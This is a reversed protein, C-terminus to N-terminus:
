QGVKDDLLDPVVDRGIKSFQLLDIVDCLRSYSVIKLRLAAESAAGAFRPLLVNEFFKAFLAYM